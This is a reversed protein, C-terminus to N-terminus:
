NTEVTNVSELMKKIADAGLSAILKMAKEEETEVKVPTGMTFNADAKAKASNKEIRALVVAKKGDIKYLEGDGCCAEALGFVVAKKFQTQSVVDIINNTTSREKKNAHKIAFCSEFFEYQNITITETKYVTGDEMERLNLGLSNCITEEVKIINELARKKEAKTPNVSAHYKVLNTYLVDINTMVGSCEISEVDAKKPLRSVDKRVLQILAYGKDNVNFSDKDSALVTLGCVLNAYKSM